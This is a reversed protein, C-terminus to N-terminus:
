IEQDKNFLDFVWSGLSFNPNDSLAAGVNNVGTYFINDNNVPNIAQGATVIAESAQNKLYIVGLVAAAGLIIMQKNTM